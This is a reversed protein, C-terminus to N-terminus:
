PIILEHWIWKRHFGGKTEGGFFGAERQSDKQAEIIAPAAPARPQQDDSCRNEEIVKVHRPIRWLFENGEPLSVYSHFILM